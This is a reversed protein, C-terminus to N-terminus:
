HHGLEHKLFWIFPLASLTGSLEGIFQNWNSIPKLSIYVIDGPILLLNKNPENIICDLSLTYIRPSSVGGRIVLVTRSATYPMGHSHAIAERISMFGAPLPVTRQATADGMVVAFRDHPAAIYIKDGGRMVIDQSLDGLKMLRYMDVGLPCGDRLIYSAFLNAEAPIRARSIIEYLRTKGDVPILSAAVIGCLLVSNTKRERFSIFVDTDHVEERLHSRVVEKAQQLTLGEVKIPEIGPLKIMGNKVSVGGKQNNFTNITNMWDARNPHYIIVQLIDEEVIKDEFPILLDPSGKNIEKGQIEEVGFKGNAYIIKSDTIFDDVTLLLYPSCLEECRIPSTFTLTAFIFFVFPYFFM